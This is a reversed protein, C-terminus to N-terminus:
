QDGVRIPTLRVGGPTKSEAVRFPVKRITLNDPRKLTYIPNQIYEMCLCKKAMCPGGDDEHAPLVHACFCRDERPVRVHKPDLAGAAVLERLIVSPVAREIGESADSV